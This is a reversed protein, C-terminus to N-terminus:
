GATRGSVSTAVARARATLTKIRALEADVDALRRTRTELDTEAARKAAAAAEAHTRQREAALTTFHDRLARQLLRLADRSEKGAIFAVEDLYTRVATKAQARRQQHGRVREDRISKGGVVLGLVLAAPAAAIGVLAGVATFMTFAYFTSRFANLGSTTKSATAAGLAAREPLSALVQRVLDDLAAADVPAGGDNSLEFREAVRTAILSTRERLTSFTAVIDAAAREGLWSSVENWLEDPDGDALAQDAEAILDRARRRLVFDLDSTFDTTEDGLVQQWSGTAPNPAPTSATATGAVIATRETEFVERLQDAVDIVAAVAALAGLQDSQSAAQRLRSVLQPVGSEDDLLADQRVLALSRLEASTVHIKVDLGATRLHDQNADAVVAVHLSLDAKTLVLDTAPVLGRILSLLELAPGGLENAGDAVFLVVDAVTLIGLSQAVHRADLGGVGPTDVLVLGEALLRRPLGIRVSTAGPWDGRIWGKSHGIPVLDATVVGDSGRRTVEVLPEASYEIVTAVATAVDIDVPCVDAAVIANVLSSKGAKFEGMVVVTVRQRELRDVLGDLRAALDPRGYAVSAKHGLRVLALADTRPSGLEPVVVGAASEAMSTTSSPM